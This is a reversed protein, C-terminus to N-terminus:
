IQRMQAAFVNYQHRLKLTQPAFAGSGLAADRM